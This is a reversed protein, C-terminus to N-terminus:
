NIINLSSDYKVSGLDHQFSSPITTPLPFAFPFSFEGPRLSVRASGDGYAFTRFEFYKEADRLHRVQTKTRNNGPSTTTTEETWSVSCSGRFRLRIGSVFLLGILVLSYILVPSLFIKNIVSLTITSVNIPLGIEKFYIKM